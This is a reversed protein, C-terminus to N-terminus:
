LPMCICFYLPGQVSCFSFALSHTLSGRLCSSHTSNALIRPNMITNENCVIYKRQQSWGVAGDFIWFELVNVQQMEVCVNKDYEPSAGSAAAWRQPDVCVIEEWSCRKEHTNIRKTSLRVDDDDEKQDWDIEDRNRRMQENSKNALGYESHIYWRFRNAILM